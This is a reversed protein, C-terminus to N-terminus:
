CINALSIRSLIEGRKTVGTSHAYPRACVRVLIGGGRVEAKGEKFASKVVFSSATDSDM